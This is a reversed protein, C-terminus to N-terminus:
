APSGGAGTQPAAFGANSLAVQFSDTYSNYTDIQDDVPLARLENLCLLINAETPNAQAVGCLPSSVVAASAPAMAVFLASASLAGVVLYKGM